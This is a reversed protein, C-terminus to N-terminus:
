NNTHACYFLKFTSSVKSDRGEKFVKTKNMKIHSDSSSHERPFQEDLTM